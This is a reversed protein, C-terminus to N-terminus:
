PCPISAARQVEKAAAPTASAVRARCCVVASGPPQAPYHPSGPLRASKATATRHTFRCNTSNGAALLAALRVLEVHHQRFMETLDATDRGIGASMRDVAAAASGRSPRPVEEATMPAGDTAAAAAWRGDHM